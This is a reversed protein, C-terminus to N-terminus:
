EMFIDSVIAIGLFLYGLTLLYVIGMLTSGLLSTGPILIISYLCIILNLIYSNLLLKGAADRNLGFNKLLVKHSCQLLITIMNSLERYLPRLFSSLKLNRSQINRSRPM